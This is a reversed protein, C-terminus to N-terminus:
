SALSISKHQAPQSAPALMKIARAHVFTLQDMYLSSALDSVALGTNCAYGEVINGGRPSHPPPTQNCTTTTGLLRDGHGSSNTPRVAGPYEHPDVLGFFISIRVMSPLM